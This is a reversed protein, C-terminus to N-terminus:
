NGHAKGKKLFLIYYSGTIFTLSCLISIVFVLSRQDELYTQQSVIDEINTVISQSQRTLRIDEVELDLSTKILFSIGFLVFAFISYIVSTETNFRNAITEAEAILAISVALCFVFLDLDSRIYKVDLSRNHILYEGCRCIYPLASAVLGFLIFLVKKTSNKQHSMSNPYRYLYQVFTYITELYEFSPKSKLILNM